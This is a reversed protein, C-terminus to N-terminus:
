VPPSSPTPTSSPTPAAQLPTSSPTPPPHHSRSWSSLRVVGTPPSALSWVKPVLHRLLIAITLGLSLDESTAVNRIRLNSFHETSREGEPRSVKREAGVGWEASQGPVQSKMASAKGGARAFASKNASFPTHPDQKRQPNPTAELETVTRPGWTVSWAM